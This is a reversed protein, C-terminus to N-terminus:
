QDMRRIRDAPPPSVANALSAPEFLSTSFDLGMAAGTVSFRTKNRTEENRVDVSKVISQDDVRKVDLVSMSKLIRGEAGILESQVPAKFQTDLYVRVGTLEPKQAAVEAPPYLLFSYAPRGRMKAVGEFIFDNWYLYPMQLDFATLDTDALPDFLAGLPLPSVTDGQGSRWSWIASQPGNQILLRREAAVVGPALVVRTIPGRDNRGGWLRGQVTREEGRRPMARLEFEWYYEGALGLQRFEDIIRKGEAPDPRGLQVYNPAPRYRRPQAFLSDTASSFFCFLCAVFAAQRFFRSGHNASVQV